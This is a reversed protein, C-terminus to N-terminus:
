VAIKLRYCCCVSYLSGSAVAADGSQSCIHKFLIYLDGAVTPLLQFHQPLCVCMNRCVAGAYYSASGDATAWTVCAGSYPSVHHLLNGM